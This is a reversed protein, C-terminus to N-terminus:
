MKDTTNGSNIWWRVRPRTESFANKYDLKIELRPFIPIFQRSHTLFRRRGFLHHRGGPVNAPPQPEVPLPQTFAQLIHSLNRIMHPLYQAQHSASALRFDALLNVVTFKGRLGPGSQIAAERPWVNKERHTCASKRITRRCTARCESQTPASWFGPPSQPRPSGASPPNRPSDATSVTRGLFWAGAGLLRTRLFTPSKLLMESWRRAVAAVLSGTAASAPAHDNWAATM